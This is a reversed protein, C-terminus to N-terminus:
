GQPLTIERALQLEITGTRNREATAADYVSIPEIFGNEKWTELPGLSKLWQWIEYESRLDEVENIFWSYSGEWNTKRRIIKM